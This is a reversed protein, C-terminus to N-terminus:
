SRWIIRTIKSMFIGGSLLMIGLMWPIIKDAVSHTIFLDITYSLIIMALCIGGSWAAVEISEKSIKNSRQIM